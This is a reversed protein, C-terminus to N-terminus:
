ASKHDANASLCQYCVSGRSTIKQKNEGAAEASMASTEFTNKLTLTLQVMRISVNQAYADNMIGPSKQSQHNAVTNNFASLQYTSQRM